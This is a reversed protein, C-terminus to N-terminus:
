HVRSIKTEKSIDDMEKFVSMFDLLYKQVPLPNLLDQNEKLVDVENIIKKKEEM